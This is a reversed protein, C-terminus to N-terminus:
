KWPSSGRINPNSGWHKPKSPARYAGGSSGTYSVPADATDLADFGAALADVQDDNADNGTGTFDLVESVFAALWPANRPVLVTGREWAASVPQARVFKDGRPPTVTLPVGDRILFHAAGQETGAAYWRMPAGLYERRLRQLDASFDPATCQRRVVDIVYTNGDSGRGLVIASSYDAHTKASYALDVGIAYHSVPAAGDYYRVDRFVRGERPRPDCQYLASFMHSGMQARQEELFEVPRGEPWLAVGTADIAPLKIETWGRKVLRGIQDDEHWRTAIVAVSSAPHLRTLVVTKLWNDANEREKASQAAEWDKILDDILVVGGPRGTVSGGVGTAYLSGGNAVMWETMSRSDSSFDVGAARAIPRALRMQSIAFDISYTLYLLPKREFYKLLWAIFHFLLTSKGHQPPTSFCVKLPERSMREMHEAIIGLWTPAILHPSTKAVFPLLPPIDLTSPQALRRVRELILRERETLALQPM